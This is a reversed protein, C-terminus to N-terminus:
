SIKADTHGDVYLTTVTPDELVYRALSALATKGAENLAYADVEYSIRTRSMEQWSVKVNTHACSLFEDLAPQLDKATLHVSLDELQAFGAPALLEIHLGQRLALLMHNALHGRAVAGGGDIHSLTGLEERRPAQPHWQPAYLVAMLPGPAHWDKRAQLEFAVPTSASAVFSVVGYTAVPLRLACVNNAAQHQWGAHWGPTFVYSDARGLPPLLVMVLVWGLAKYKQLNVASEDALVALVQAGIVSIGHM